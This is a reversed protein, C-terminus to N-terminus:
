REARRRYESPSVGYAEKFRRSFHTMDSFGWGYAIEGVTRHDQNPDDFARRCRTLRRALIFRTLSTDQEALLANVYRVSIGVADAVIQPDLRPNCLRSEIAARIQGLM